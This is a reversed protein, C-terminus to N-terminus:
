MNKDRELDKEQKKEWKNLKKKENKIYSQRKQADAETRGESEDFRGTLDELLQENGSLKQGRLDSGEVDRRTKSKYRKMFATFHDTLSWATVAFEESKNKQWIAGRERSGSKSEFTGKKAMGRM